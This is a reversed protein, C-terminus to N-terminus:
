VKVTDTFIPLKVFIPIPINNRYSSFIQIPIPINNALCFRYRYPKFNWFRNSDTDTLIPKLHIPRDRFYLYVSMCVPLCLSFCVSLCLSQCVTLQCAYLYVLSLCVSLCVILIVSLFVLCVYMHYADVLLLM